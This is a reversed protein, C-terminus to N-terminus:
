APDILLDLPQWGGGYEGLLYPFYEHPSCGYDWYGCGDTWLKLQWGNSWVIDASKDEDYYSVAIPRFGAGADGAYRSEFSWYPYTDDPGDFRNAWYAVHSGTRFLIDPTGNGDVDGTAFPEWGSNFSAFVFPFYGGWRTVHNVWMKLESGNTWLVDVRSGNDPGMFNELAVVRYGEGGDGAYASGIVAAGNMLWYALHTGTRFFLDSKGDGNVDGAAFPQWGSNHHGVAVSSYYGSGNNIWLKLHDGNGWLVDASGEGDFDSVAVVSYGPGADGAYVSAVFYPAAGGADGLRWFALATGGRFILDARGDRVVDDPLRQRSSAAAGDALLCLSALVAAIRTMSQKTM